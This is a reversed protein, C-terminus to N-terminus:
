QQYAALAHNRQHVGVAVAIDLYQGSWVRGQRRGARGGEWGVLLDKERHSQVVAIIVMCAQFIRVNEARM